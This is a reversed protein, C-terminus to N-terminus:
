WQLALKGLDYDLGIPSARCRGPGLRSLLARSNLFCSPHNGQDFNRASRHGWLVARGKFCISAQLVHLATEPLRRSFQARVRPVAGTLSLLNM